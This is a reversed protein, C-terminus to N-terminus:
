YVSKIRRRRGRTVSFSAIAKNGYLTPILSNKTSWGVAEILMAEVADFFWGTKIKCLWNLGSAKMRANLMTRMKSLESAAFHFRPYITLSGFISNHLVLVVWHSRERSVGLSTLLFRKYSTVPSM